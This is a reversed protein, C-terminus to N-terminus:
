ADFYFIVELHVNKAMGLIWTFIDISSQVCIM